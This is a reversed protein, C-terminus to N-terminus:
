WIARTFVRNLYTHFVPLQILKLGEYTRYFCILERAKSSGSLM